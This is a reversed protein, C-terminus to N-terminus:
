FSQAPPTVHLPAGAKKISDKIHPPIEEKVSVLALRTITM